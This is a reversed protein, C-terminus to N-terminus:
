KDELGLEKKIDQRMNEIYEAKKHPDKIRKLQETNYDRKKKTEPSNYGVLEWFLGLVIIGGVVYLFYKWFPDSFLEGLVVVGASFMWGFLGPAFILVIVFLILWLVFKM